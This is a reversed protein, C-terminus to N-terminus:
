LGRACQRGDFGCTATATSRSTTRAPSRRSGRHDYGAFYTSPDGPDGAILVIAWSFTTRTRDDAHDRHHPRAQQRGAPQGRRDALARPPHNTCAVYTRGNVPQDRRGRSPGDEDPRRRGGRPPGSWCRSRPSAPAQSRNDVLLGGGTGDSVGDEYGDGTFRAVHWDGSTLLTKNHVRAARSDGRRYRQHSVFKYLYDFREDDGTYAVVRGDEAITVTAGEHKLRGLATHKVPTSTPDMPDVEVIFGFRNAENPRHALDFRSDVREWGRGSSGALGYRAYAAGRDAPGADARFYGGWNEEGSLM